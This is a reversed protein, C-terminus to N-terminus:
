DLKIEKIKSFENGFIHTLKENQQLIMSNLKLHEPCESHKSVRRKKIKIKSPDQTM